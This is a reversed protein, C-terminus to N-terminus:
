RKTAPPGRFSPGGSAMTLRPATLPVSPEPWSSVRRTAASPGRTRLRVADVTRALVLLLLAGAVAVVAQLALGIWIVPEEWLPLAHAHARALVREAAELVIFGGAQLAGLRIALPAFLSSAEGAASPARAWRIGFMLLGALAALICVAVLEDWHGHGGSAVSRHGEDGARALFFALSHGAAIGGSALGFIWFSRGRPCESSM